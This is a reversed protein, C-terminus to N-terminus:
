VRFPVCYCKASELGLTIALAAVEPVVRFGELSWLLVEGVLGLTTALAAVEPVFGFGVPVM